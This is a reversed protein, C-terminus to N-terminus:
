KSKKGGRVIAAFLIGGGLLGLGIKLDGTAGRITKKVDPPLKVKVDIGMEYLGM